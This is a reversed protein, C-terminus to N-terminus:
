GLQKIVEATWVEAFRQTVQSVNNSLAPRMFPVAPMKSTGLELFRWYFVSGYNHYSQGVRRARRNEANNTYPIRAGGKIGVRIKVENADRSRGGQTVINKWIKTPTSPDDFARASQRAANRVINMGQRGAKRAIRKAQKADAVNALNQLVRDLGEINQM